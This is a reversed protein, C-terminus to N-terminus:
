DSGVTIRSAFRRQAARITPKWDDPYASDVAVTETSGEHGREKIPVLGSELSALLTKTGEPDAKFLAEYHDRRAPPIKGAKIAGDLVSARLQNDREVVLERSAAVGQRLDDLISQDILAMGEPIAPSVVVPEVVPAPTEVPVTSEVAPAVVPTTLKASLAANIEDETAEPTLGLTQLVEASLQMDTGKQNTPPLTASIADRVRPRGAMVPNGFRKAVSQGAAIIDVYQIRVEQSEGFTVADIGDKTSKLSYPIRFLHGADDDVILEM